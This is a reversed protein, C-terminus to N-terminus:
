FPAETDYTEGEPLAWPDDASGDGTRPGDLHAQVWPEDRPDDPPDPDRQTGDPNIRGM